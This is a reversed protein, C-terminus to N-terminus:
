RKRGTIQLILVFHQIGYTNSLFSSVDVRLLCVLFKPWVQFNKNQKAQTVSMLKKTILPSIGPWGLNVYSNSHFDCFPLLKSSSFFVLLLEVTEMTNTKVPHFCSKINVNSFVWTPLTHYLSMHTLVGLFTKVVSATNSLHTETDRGPEVVSGLCWHKQGLLSVILNLWFLMSSVQLRWASITSSQAYPSGLLVVGSNGSSRSYSM